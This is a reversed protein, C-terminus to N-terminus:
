DPKILSTCTTTYTQELELPVALNPEIWLPITPLEIGLALAFPWVDLGIKEDEKVVRYVMAALGSPSEWDFEEPLELLDVLAQHLNAQRNSVVDIVAVSVGEQLYSAIKTAFSRRHTQRDKNSPSVLEVAAVLKWGGDDKFIQVEFLDPDTFSVEGRIPPAPPAYVEPLTAIGGNTGNSGFELREDEYTAVDIEVRTGRHVQQESEFGQPLVFGNLHQAMVFAWGGHIAEWSKRTSLPPHFHDLLPM